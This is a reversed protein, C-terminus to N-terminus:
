AASKQAMLEAYAALAKERTEGYAYNDSSQLDQFGEGVVCWANGDQMVRVAWWPKQFGDTRCANCAWTGGYAFGTQKCQGHPFPHIFYIQGARIMEEAKDWGHGREFRAYGDAASRREVGHVRSNFGGLFNGSLMGADFIEHAMRIRNTDSM